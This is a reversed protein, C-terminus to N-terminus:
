YLGANIDISTGNIYDNAILFSIASFIMEPKGLEGSPIKSIIIKMYDEPVQEIMGLNFYGLNLNNITIGKKANEVAISKSLGWLASKSAAYASAGPTPNQAIVSSLNIIRGFNEDRMIPLLYHIIKFTGILNVNIVKEWEILDAKHAYSNYNTGACNILVLNTLERKSDNIFKIIQENKTIDVQFLKGEQLSDPKTTNYLGIVTQNESLFKTFLYKGIGKSAGTIIIM